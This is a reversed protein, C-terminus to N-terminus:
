QRQLETVYSDVKIGVSSKTIIRLVFVQKLEINIFVLTGIGGGGGLWM